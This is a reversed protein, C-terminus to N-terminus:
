LAEPGGNEIKLSREGNMPLEGRTNYAEERTNYAM